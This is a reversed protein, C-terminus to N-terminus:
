LDFTYFDVWLNWLFAETSLIDQTSDLYAFDWVRRRIDHM